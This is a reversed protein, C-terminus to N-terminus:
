PHQESPTVDPPGTAPLEDLSDLWAWGQRSWEPGGHRLFLPRGLGDLAQELKNTCGPHPCQKGQDEPVSGHVLVRWAAAVAALEAGVNPAALGYTHTSALSRPMGGARWGPFPRADYAFRNHIKDPETRYGYNVNVRVIDPDVDLVTALERLAEGWEYRLDALDGKSLRLDFPRFGGAPATPTPPLWVMNPVLAHFHPLSSRSDPRRSLDTTPKPGEGCPHFNVIMGGRGGPDVHRTEIWAELLSVIRRRLLVLQEVGVRDRLESGLTFVFAACPVGGFREFLAIGRRAKVRQYCTECDLKDCPQFGRMWGHTECYWAGERNTRTCYPREDTYPPRWSLRQPPRRLVEKWDARGWLQRLARDAQTPTTHSMATAKPHDPYPAGGAGMGAEGPGQGTWGELVELFPVGAEESALAALDEAHIDGALM